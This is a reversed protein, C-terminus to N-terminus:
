VIKTTVDNKDKNPLLLIEINPFITQIGKVLKKTSTSSYSYYFIIVKIDEM